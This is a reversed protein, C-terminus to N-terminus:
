EEQSKIFGGAQLDWLAKYLSKDNKLLEDHTGDERVAGGDIVLIRDMKRITSLRHAIVIVTKGKMLVDLADQILAESQSDLSSTAEDLILIPANKLIARAIAVRQREGGSLKIGREGVYTQYKEPLTDIFEDCHALRAAAIVEDDTASLHGYRINDMLTRHFLLPEQPVFAIAERLSQLTVTGIDQGDIRVTGGTPDFTRMILRVLTSKGAGSPGVLAVRQGGPITVTVENLIVRNTDYAFQVNEFAIEGSDAGLLTAHQVDQIEYPLKIMQLAETGQAHINFITRVVRGFDFQKSAIQVVYAQMLVVTGLTIAGAAWYDVAVYMVLFEVIFLVFLLAADFYNNTNWIKTQQRAEDDSTGRYRLAENEFAFFSSVTPHNSM